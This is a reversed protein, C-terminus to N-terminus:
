PSSERAAPRAAGSPAPAAEAAASRAPLCLRVLLAAWALLAADLGVFAAVKVWAIGPAVFRVLFGSLVGLMASGFSLSGLLSFLRPSTARAFGVVHVAAFLVLPIAVLHPVAVELMGALTRPSTFREPAGLYFARVGDPGAGLKGAFLAAASAALVVLYAAFSLLAGRYPALRPDAM